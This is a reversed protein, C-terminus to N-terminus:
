LTGFHETVETTSSSSASPGSDKEETELIKKADMKHGLVMFRLIIKNAITTSGANRCSQLWTKGFPEVRQDRTLNSREKPPPLSSELDSRRDMSFELEDM